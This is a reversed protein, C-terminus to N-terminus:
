PAKCANGRGHAMLPVATSFGHVSTLSNDGQLINPPYMLNSNKIRGGSKKLAYATISKETSPPSQPSAPHKPEKHLIINFFIRM